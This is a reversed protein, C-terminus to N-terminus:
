SPCVHTMSMGLPSDTRYTTSVPTSCSVRDRRVEEDENQLGDQVQRDFRLQPNWQSRFVGWLLYTRRVVLRVPHNATGRRVVVHQPANVRRVVTPGALM